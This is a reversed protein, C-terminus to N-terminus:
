ARVRQAKAELPRFGADPAITQVPTRKASESAPQAIKPKLPEAPQRDCGGLLGILLAAAILASNGARSM